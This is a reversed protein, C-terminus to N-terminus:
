YDDKNLKCYVVDSEENRIVLDRIKFANSNSLTNTLEGTAKNFYEYYTDLVKDVIMSTTYESSELKDGVKLDETTNFAYRKAYRAYDKNDSYVVLITRKKM